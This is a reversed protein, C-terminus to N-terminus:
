RTVLDTADLALGSLRREVDVGVLIDIFARSVLGRVDDYGRLAPESRGYSTFSLASAYKPNAELFPRLTDIAGQRAPFYGSSQAWRAQADPTLLYKLFLWAALKREPTNESLSISPGYLNMVPTTTHPLMSVGWEFGPGGRVAREYFPLGSSTGTTFLTTGAGFNDQDAYPETVVRACGDAVLMQLYEAAQIAEPSDYTFRGNEEDYLSGGFAFIWASFTSADTSIEYGVPATVGPVRSFTTESARCAAARFEDPTAPPGEYSLDLENLWDVNYYLIEMSRNTALGLRKEDMSTFVDQALYAPNFDAIEDASLGWAPSAYLGSLDLRGGAEEIRAAADQYAVIMDPADATGLADLTRSAIDDVGGMYRANVVIRYQNTTNFAAILRNMEAVRQGRYNHWFTVQQGAPDIGAWRDPVPTPLLTATAPPVETPRPTSTRLMPSPTPSVPTSAQPSVAPASACGAACLLALAIGFLNMHKM